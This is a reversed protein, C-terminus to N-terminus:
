FISCAIYAGRYVQKTLRDSGLLAICCDAALISENAVDLEKALKEFDAEADGAVEEMAVDERAAGEDDKPTLSRSNREAKKAKANKKASPKKPSSRASPAPVHHSAFPDIDEGAKISRELIKLLRSLMQTDVDAMRGKGRPTGLAGGAVQRLRKTPRAVHGIYKTLKRIIASSLYPRTLDVSLPSFFDHNLDSPELESPLMDEAEFVDEIL